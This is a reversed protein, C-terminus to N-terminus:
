RGGDASVLIRDWPGQVPAGLRGPHAVTVSVWPQDGDALAARARVVLDGVLDVGLVRGAPGGLEGLIAVTRAAGAGVDLVRDGPRPDLLTIMAHVTSPQSNTAHHGIPLARDEDAHQQQDAPLFRKRDQAAMAASVPDDAASATRRWRMIGLKAGHSIPLADHLSLTYLDSPSLPTLTTIYTPTV